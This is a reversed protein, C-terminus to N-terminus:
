VEISVDHVFGCVGHLPCSYTVSKRTKGLPTVKTSRANKRACLPCFGRKLEAHDQVILSHHEQCIRLGTARGNPCSTVDCKKVPAPPAPPLADGNALERALWARLARLM